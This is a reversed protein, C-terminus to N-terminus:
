PHPMLIQFHKLPSEKMTIADQEASGPLLVNLKLLPDLIELKHPYLQCMRNQQPIPSCSYAREVWIEVLRLTYPLKEMIYTDISTGVTCTCGMVDHSLPKARGMSTLYSLCMCDNGSICVCVCVYVCVCVCVHVCAYM